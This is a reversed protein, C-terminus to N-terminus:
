RKGLLDICKGIERLSCSGLNLIWQTESCTLEDFDSFVLDMNMEDLFKMIEKFHSPEDITVDEPTKAPVEINVRDLNSKKYLFIYGMKTLEKETLSEPLDNDSTRFWNLTEKNKVDARYHGQTTQGIVNGSHHIIAMPEFKGVKGNIDMLQLEEGQDVNVNTKMIHLQHDIRILRELVFIVYHTQEIDSIRTRSRGNTQDGCGDEDRWDEVVNFGNMQEEVYDKMKVNESPCTLTIFTRENGSVEQKSVHGCSVCETENLTQIKFLNFVDPWSERNEDLCFFFDKCDQQGIRSIRLERNASLQFNGLDFLTHSQAVKQTVIREKETQIIALKVDTPDLDSSDKGQLWLLTQWLVSGTPCIVDKFDLATLVLQLCSNLWCTESDPNIIRRQHCRGDVNERRKKNPVQDKCQSGKRKDQRMQSINNDIKASQLETRITERMFIMDATGFSFPKKFALYKAFCLLFVGCDYTNEQAPIEPPLKVAIEIRECVRNYKKYLPEFYNYKLKTLISIHFQHNEEMLKKKKEGNAGPFNYPDYSILEKGNFTILFWHSGHHVPIFLTGYSLVDDRRYYNKVREFGGETFAQHFYTTYMYYHSFQTNLVKLYADIVEDNLWNPSFLCTLDVEAQSESDMEPNRKSKEKTFDREPTADFLKPNGKTKRKTEKDVDCSLKQLFATNFGNGDKAIRSSLLHHDTTYNIFSTVFYNKFKKCNLLIHDLQNFRTTTIENLVSSRGSSLTKLKGSDPSRNPDLNFDGMLLDCTELDKKLRKIQELTPTERTYIFATKMCYDKFSVFLVQIQTSNNKMYKKEEVIEILNGVRSSKSKLMLLGMHKKNDESDFRAEISWNTLEQHLFDNTIAELLRTDAVVLFDLSLLNKDKNVFTLSRGTLIDNINIYGLKLEDENSIFISEMNYTKKFVHSKFVKMAEMKKEIEPNAKVYEEKFDQLYLNRGYKVRSMATYFSGNNIRGDDDFNIHVEDLTQGQSKHATVAYCLTLPFQDRLYETNGRVQFPKKQKMIPVSLPDNPTHDKLLSSSDMRMLQGIKDDNFRVWVVKAVDPEEASAQISDIFGRAGNVLGNNKYKSKPHNSTIMVPAGEKFLVKTPLQGTRTLPLKESIKPANPNNTSKDVANSFYTKKNPLLKELKENNIAERAKNNTVIISFKGSAYKDNNNESPSRGVHKKLYQTVKEDCIGARVNDCIDSFEDDQSRMKLTLYYIKFNEDWHHPSIELRNDLFSTAWVMQQGVPPLQGFDGTCVISVGGMFETNGM